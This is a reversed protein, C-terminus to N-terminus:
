CSNRLLQSAIEVRGSFARNHQITPISQVAVGALSQQIEEGQRSMEGRVMWARFGQLAFPDRNNPVDQM